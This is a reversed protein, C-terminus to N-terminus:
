ACGTRANRALLWDGMAFGAAVRKTCRQDPRGILGMKGAWDRMDDLRDILYAAGVCAGMSTGAIIDPEIGMEALARLVGIHAWGRAAGSGLALGIKGTM